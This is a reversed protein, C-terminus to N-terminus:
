VVIHAGVFANIRRDFEQTQRAIGVGRVPGIRQIVQLESGAVLPRHLNLVASVKVGPRAQGDVLNVGVNALDGVLLALLSGPDFDVRGVGLGVDLDGLRQLADGPVNFLVAVGVRRIVVGKVVGHPHAPAVPADDRIVNALIREVLFDVNLWDVVWERDVKVRIRDQRIAGVGLLAQNGAHHGLGDEAFHKGARVIAGVEELAASAIIGGIPHHGLINPDGLIEVNLPDLGLQQHERVAGFDVLVLQGAVLKQRQRADGDNVLTRAKALHDLPALQGRHFHQFFFVPWAPIDRHHRDVPLLKNNLVLALLKAQHPKGFVWLAHVVEPAGRHGLADSQRRLGLPQQRFALVLAM